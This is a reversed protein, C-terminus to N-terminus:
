SRKVGETSRSGCVTTVLVVVWGTLIVRPHIAEQTPPPVTWM